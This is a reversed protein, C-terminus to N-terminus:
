GLFVKKIKKKIKRLANERSRYLKKEGCEALLDAFYCIKEAIQPDKKMLPMLTLDGAIASEVVDKFARVIKEEMLDTIKEESMFKKEKEFKKELPRLFKFGRNFPPEVCALHWKQLQTERPISEAAWYLAWIQFDLFQFDFHQYDVFQYDFTQYDVSHYYLMPNDVLHSYVFIYDVQPHNLIPNDYHPFDPSLRDRGPNDVQSDSRAPRGDPM